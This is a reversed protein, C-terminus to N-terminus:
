TGSAFTTIGSNMRSASGFRWTRGWGTRTNELAELLSREPMEEMVVRVAEAKADIEFPLGAAMSPM